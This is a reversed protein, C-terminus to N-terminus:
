EFKITGWRNPQLIAEGPIDSVLNTDQNSWYLRAVNETGPENSLIVGFDGRITQGATPKMDLAAWPITADVVYRGQQVDVKLTVDELIRVCDFERRMVPSQYVARHSADAKKDVQRMLVAIPKKDYSAILIRQDGDVPENKTNASPSLQIDVCDGTKFLLNPNTGSNRWPSSDTVNFRAYLNTDDYSFQVEAWAPQGAKEIKARPVDNWNSSKRKISYELSKAAEQKRAIDDKEAQQRLDETLQIPPADFRRVTEFGRLRTVMVAERPIGNTMRIVGDDQRGIWGNFPESGNTLVELPMSLLEEETAPLQMGPLRGDLFMAGIYLGDLTMYFDQGLNGRIGFFGKDPKDADVIGMVKLPGIILGPKPMTARHSGHVSHYPNPYSWYEKGDTRAIGAIKGPKGSVGATTLLAQNMGSVPLVEASAIVPVIERLGQSGYTPAGEPTFGTPTYEFVSTRSLAYFKMDTPDIRVGWGNRLPLGTTKLNQNNRQLTVFECEERQVKGDKNKDNWFVGDFSSFEAFDGETPRVVEGQHSIEGSIMGVTTIASVPRWADGEKLYLVYGHFERYGPSFMYEREVGSAKSRFVTTQVHDGPRIQFCEGKEADALWTIESVSWDRTNPKLDIEIPGVYGKKPDNEHLFAGTGAYGTNGIYDRVFKGDSTSWLSVRRPWDTYETAWIQGKADIAIDSVCSVAEPLFKGRIPRGGKLGATRVLRGDKDFAKIQCDAGRDVVWTLGANDLAIAGPNGVGDLKLPSRAKTEMDLTFLRGDFSVLLRKGDASFVLADVRTDRMSIFPSFAKKDPKPSGSEMQDFVAIPLATTTDLLVIPGKDLLVALRKEDAALAVVKGTKEPYGLNTGALIEAVPLEFERQKGDKVFPAYKGTKAEIRVISEDKTHWANPVAFIYRNNGGMATVGRKDGWRKQGQPDMGIIGMGGEAFPWALVIWDDCRVVYRATSHDAGWAGSQDPKSWPPTGPNYFCREYDAGLPGHVLGRVTYKESSALKGDDDLGDWLVEVTGAHADKVAFERPDCDGALNRIRKGNADEIVLTFGSIKEFNNEAGPLVARVPIVGQPANGGVVYRRPELKGKEMIRADGWVNRATWFFERSTAGPQMNDAYRHMPWDDGTSAGWHFDIGLKFVDGVTPTHERNYVIKWPIRLEQIFGDGEPLLKYAMQAGEGLDVEGPKSILIRVDQGKKDQTADQWYSLHLVARKTPAHYWTTFWAPKDSAIIRLQVSDAVWGKDPNFDPDVISNMPMPDKWLFSLYLYDKDWMTASKVSFRDRVAIDAFSWMQGSLDWDNLDGDIQVKGPAPVVSLGENQSQRGIMNESATASWFCSVLFVFSFFTFFRYQM